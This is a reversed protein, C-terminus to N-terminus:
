IEELSLITHQKNFGELLAKHSPWVIDQSGTTKRLGMITQIGRIGLSLVLRKLLKTTEGFNKKQVQKHIGKILGTCSETLESIYSFTEDRVNAGM